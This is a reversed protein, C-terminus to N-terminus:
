GSYGLDSVKDEVSVRLGARINRETDCYDILGLSSDNTVVFGWPAPIVDCSQLNIHAPAFEGVKRSVLCRLVKHELFKVGIRLPTARDLRVKVGQTDVM